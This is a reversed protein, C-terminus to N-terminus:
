AGDSDVSGRFALFKERSKLSDPYILAIGSIQTGNPTTNQTTFDFEAGVLVRGTRASPPGPGDGLAPNLGWVRTNNAMALNVSFLNVCQGGPGSPTSNCQMYAGYNNTNIATSGAPLCSCATRHDRFRSLRHVERYCNGSKQLSQPFPFRSAAVIATTVLRAKSGRM